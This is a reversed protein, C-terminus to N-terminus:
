SRENLIKQTDYTNSAIRELERMVPGDDAWRNNLLEIGDGMRKFGEVMTVMADNFFNPAVPPATTVQEGGSGLLNAIMAATFGGAAGIAAGPLAGVGLFPAGAAGGLAAGSLTATGIGMMRDYYTNGTAAQYSGAGVGIAGGVGPILRAGTALAGPAAAALAPAATTGARVLSSIGIGARIAQLGLYGGVLLGAQTGGSAGTISEIKRSLWSIASGLPGLIAGMSTMADKLGTLVTTINETNIERLARNVNDIETKFLGLAESSTRIVGADLAGVARLIDSVAANVQQTQADTPRGAGGRPVAGPRNVDIQRARTMMDM